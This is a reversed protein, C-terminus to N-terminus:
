EDELEYDKGDFTFCGDYVYIDQTGSPHSFEATSGDMEYGEDVSIYLDGGTFLVAIEGSVVSGRCDTYIPKLKM